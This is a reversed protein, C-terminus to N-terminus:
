KSVPIATYIPNLQPRTNPAYIQQGSCQFSMAIGIFLIIWMVTKAREHHIIISPLFEIPM